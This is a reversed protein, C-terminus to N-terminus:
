RRVIYTSEAMSGIYQNFLDSAADGTVASGGGVVAGLFFDLFTTSSKTMTGTTSGTFTHASGCIFRNGDTDNSSKTLYGSAATNTCTEAEVLAAVLTASSGCQLYGELVRSGRRLTLDLSVRGPSQSAVLRIVIMEHDNRLVSASDWDPATGAVTVKWQKSHYASGSYTQVDFVGASSSPEVNVLGNSLSWDLTGVEMSTGEVEVGTSVLHTDTLRVRGKKYNAVTCGWRPSVNAPVGLYVTMDGDAGTRTMSTPNTSGTWYAYHGIAPAHWRSGSASFDNTRVTATLRSQLDVEKDSGLRTLTATWNSTVVDGQYDNMEATSSQVEYYGNRDSKDTFQVAYIRGAQLGLAQEHLAQCEAVTAPPSSEQGQLTVTGDSQESILGAELLKFRGYDIEGWDPGHIAM